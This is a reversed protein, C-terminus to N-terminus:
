DSFLVLGFYTVTNQGNIYKLETTATTNYVDIGYGEVSSMAQEPFRCPQGDEKACVQCYGCGGCSLYLAGPLAPRLADRIRRSVAAHSRGASLMGEIDFSDELQGITQFLLGYPYQRVQAIREQVPGIDPPCTWCRGYRGCQNTACIDRFCADTVIQDRTIVCAKVAGCELATQILKDRDMVSRM